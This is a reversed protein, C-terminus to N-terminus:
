VVRNRGQTKAAMRFFLVMDAIDFGLVVGVFDIFLAQVAVIGVVRVEGLLQLCGRRLKTKGAVVLLQISRRSLDGVHLFQELLVAVPVPRDPLFIARRTMVRVARIVHADQLAGIRPVKVRREGHFFIREAEATVLLGQGEITEGGREGIKAVSILIQVETVDILRNFPPGASGAVLDVGAVVRSMDAIGDGVALPVKWRVVYFKPISPFASGATMNGTAVAPRSLNLVRDVIFFEIGILRLIFVTRARHSPARHRAKGAKARSPSCTPM